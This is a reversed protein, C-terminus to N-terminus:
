SVLEVYSRCREMSSLFQYFQELSLEMFVVGNGKDNGHDITLKIQLFTKGVQDCDNSSATVGFSWDMDVLRNSTVTRALLSTVMQPSSRQWQGVMVAVVETSLGLANCRAELQPVNLGDQIAGQFFVLLGRVLVKLVKTDVSTNTEAYAGLSTQFDGKSPDLLFALVLELLVTQQAGTLKALLAINEGLEQEVTQSAEMAYVGTHASTCRPHSRKKCSRAAALEQGMTGARNNPHKLTQGAQRRDFRDPGRGM